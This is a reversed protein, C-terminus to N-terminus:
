NDSRPVAVIPRQDSGDRATIWYYGGTTDVRMTDSVGLRSSDSGRASWRGVQDPDIGAERGAHRIVRKGEDETAAWVEPTGWSAGTHRVRVPGSQWSFDRWHDVLASLEVGESGRYRLRKRLRSKGFPSTEDSRFSITRFQGQIPEEEPCACEKLKKLEEQIKDLDDDIDDFRPNYDKPPLPPQPEPPGPPEPAVWDPGKESSWYAFPGGCADTTASIVYYTHWVLQDDVYADTAQITWNCGGIVHNIPEAIPDGPNHDPLQPDPAPEECTAEGKPILTFYPERLLSEGLQVIKTEAQSIDCNGRIGYVQYIVQGQDEFSEIRTIEKVDGAYLTGPPSSDTRNAYLNGNCSGGTGSIKKCGALVQPGNDPSPEVYNCGAQEATWGAAYSVGALGLALPIKGTFASGLAANFAGQQVGGYFQCEITRWNEDLWSVIAPVAM